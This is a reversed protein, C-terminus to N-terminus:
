AARVSNAAIHHGTNHSVSGDGGMLFRRHGILVDGIRTGFKREGVADDGVFAHM